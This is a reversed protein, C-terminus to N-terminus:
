RLRLALIRSRLLRYELTYIHIDIVYKDQRDTQTESVLLRHFLFIVHTMHIHTLIKFFFHGDTGSRNRGDTRGDPFTVNKEFDSTKLQRNRSFSVMLPLVFYILMKTVILLTLISYKLVM